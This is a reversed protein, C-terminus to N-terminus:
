KRVYNSQLGVQVHDRGLAKQALVNLQDTFLKADFDIKQASHSSCLLLVLWLFNWEYNIM